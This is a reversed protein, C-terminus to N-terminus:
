EILYKKNHIDIDSPAILEIIDKLQLHINRTQSAM